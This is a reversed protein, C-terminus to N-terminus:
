FLPLPSSEPLAPTLPEAHWLRVSEAIGRLAVDSPERFSFPGGGAAEVVQDTVLVEAPGARTLIRAAVNVTHGFYDGARSLAKGYAVGARCSPMDERSRTTEVIRIVGELMAIASPSALMLGDGLRKVIRPGGRLAQRRVIRELRRAYTLAQIDGEKETLSTFGSLDVFGIAVEVEGLVPAGGAQAMPQMTLELAQLLHRRHLAAPMSEVALM